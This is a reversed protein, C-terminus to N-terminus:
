FNIVTESTASLEIFVGKNMEFANKGELDEKAIGRTNMCTGCVYIPIKRSITDALAQAFPATGLGQLNGAISDNMLLVGDALLAISVEHGSDAAAVAMEFSLIAKTPNDSAHTVVFLISAM